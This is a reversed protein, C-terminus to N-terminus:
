ISSTGEDSFVNEMYWKYTRLIGEELDIVPRYGTAAHTQVMDPCRRVPSGPTEKLPLVRLDTRGIKRLIIDAFDRITIEQEQNGINFTGGVAKITYGLLRMMETADDLWFAEISVPGTFNRTPDVSDGIQGVLQFNVGATM